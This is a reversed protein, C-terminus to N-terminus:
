SKAAFNSERMRCNRPKNFMCSTDDIAKDYASATLNTVFANFTPFANFRNGFKPFKYEKPRSFSSALLLVFVAPAIAKCLSDPKARVDPRRLADNASM